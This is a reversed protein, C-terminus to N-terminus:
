ARTAAARRAADAIAADAAAISRDLQQLQGQVAFYREAAHDAAARAANVEHAPDAADAVRERGVGASVVALVLVVAALAPGARRRTPVGAALGAAARASRRRSTAPM